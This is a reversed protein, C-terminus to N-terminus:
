CPKNQRMNPYALARRLTRLVLCEPEDSADLYCFCDQCFCSQLTYTIKLFYASCDALPMHGDNVMKDITQSCAQERLCPERMRPGRYLGKPYCHSEQFLRFIPIVDIDNTFCYWLTKEYPVNGAKFQYPPNMVRKLTTVGVDLKRAMDAKSEFFHNLCYNLFFVIFEHEM